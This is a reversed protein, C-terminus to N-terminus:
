AFAKLWREAREPREDLPENMVLREDSIVLREDSIVLREPREPRRNMPKDIGFRLVQSLEIFYKRFNLLYHFM